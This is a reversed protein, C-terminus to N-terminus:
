KLVAEFIPGVYRDSVSLLDNWHGDDPPGHFTVGRDDGYLLDGYLLGHSFATTEPM